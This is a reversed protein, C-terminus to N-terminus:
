VFRLQSSLTVVLTFLVLMKSSSETDTSTNVLTEPDLWPVNVNLLWNVLVWLLADNYVKGETVTFAEVPVTVESVGVSTFEKRNQNWYHNWNNLYNLNKLIFSYWFMHKM